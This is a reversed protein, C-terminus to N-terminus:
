VDKKEETFDSMNKPSFRSDDMSALSNIMSAVRQELIIPRVVPM